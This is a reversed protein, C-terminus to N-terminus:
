CCLFDTESRFLIRLESTKGPPLCSLDYRKLENITHPHATKWWLVQYFAISNHDGQGCSDGAVNRCLILWSSKASKTTWTFYPISMRDATSANFIRTDTFDCGLGIAPLAPPAGVEHVISQAFAVSSRGPNSNVHLSCSRNCSEASSYGIEFALKVSYASFGANRKLFKWLSTVRSNAADTPIKAAHKLDFSPTNRM